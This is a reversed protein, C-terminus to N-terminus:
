PAHRRFVLVDGFRQETYGNVIVPDQLFKKVVSNGELDSPALVVVDVTHQRAPSTSTVRPDLPFTHTASFFPFPFPILTDRNAVHPAVFGSAVVVDSARVTKLAARVDAANPAAMTLAGTTMPGVLFFSAAALPAGFFLVRRGAENSVRSATHAAALLLFPLIPAGYHYAPSHLNPDAALLTPLAVFGAILAWGPRGLPLMALPLLLILVPAINDTAFLHTVVGVLAHAPHTAINAMSTGLYGYRSEFHRSAGLATGIQAGIVTWAVGAAMLAARTRRGSRTDGRWGVMAVAVGALALDDRLLVLALFVLWMHRHRNRVAAHLGIFLFPVAVTTPHFDWLLANWVAPSVVFAAILFTVLRSNEDAGVAVALPRICLVAVGIAISQMAFFWLPTAALWYLPLFVLLVPSLHDGFTNWATLSSTAGHGHAMKWVVQEFVALDYTTSRFTAHRYWQTGFATLAVLVALVRDLRHRSLYPRDGM